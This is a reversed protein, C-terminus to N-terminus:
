VNPQLLNLALSKQNEQMSKYADNLAGILLIQLSEKDELLSNDINLDIVEGNGNITVDILGGGSKARFTVSKASEQMKQLREQMQALGPMNAFLKSLDEMSIQLEKHSSGIRNQGCRQM